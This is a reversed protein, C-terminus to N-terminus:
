QLLAIRVSASSGSAELHAFYIGSPLTRGDDTTVGVVRGDKGDISALGHNFDFEVGWEEHTARFFEATTASVARAM